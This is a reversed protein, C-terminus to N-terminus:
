QHGRSRGHRLSNLHLHCENTLKHIEKKIKSFFSNNTGSYRLTLPKTTLDPIKDSEVKDVSKKTRIDEEPVITVQLNLMLNIPTSPHAVKQITTMKSKVQEAINNLQAQTIAKFAYETTLTGQLEKLFEKQLKSELDIDLTKESGYEYFYQDFCPDEYPSYCDEYPSYLLTREEVAEYNSDALSCTYSFNTHKTDAHFYENIYIKIRM